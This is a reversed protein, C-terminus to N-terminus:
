KGAFQCFIYENKSGTDPNLIELDAYTTNPIITASYNDPNVTIAVSLDNVTYSGEIIDGEANLLYDSSPNYAPLIINNRSSYQRYHLSSDSFFRYVTYTYSPFSKKDKYVYVGDYRLTNALPIDNEGDNNETGYGLDACSKGEFWKGGVYLDSCAQKSTEECATGMIVSYECAGQEDESCFLFPITVSFIAISLIIKCIGSSTFRKM